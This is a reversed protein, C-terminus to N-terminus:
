KNNAKWEEYHKETFVWYGKKSIQTRNLQYSITHGLLEQAHNRGKVIIIINTKGRRRMTKQIKNINKRCIESQTSWKLNKVDLNHKNGDIFEVKHRASPKPPGWTELVLSAVSVTVKKVEKTSDRLNIILYGTKKLPINKILTATGSHLSFVEGTKSILYKPWNPIPKLHKM